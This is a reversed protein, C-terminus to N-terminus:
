HVTQRIITPDRRGVVGRAADEEEVCRMPQAKTTRGPWSRRPRASVRVSNGLRLVLHEDFGDAKEYGEGQGPKTITDSGVDQARRWRRTGGTGDKAGAHAVDEAADGPSSEAAPDVVSGAEYRAAATRLEEGPCEAHQDAQYHSDGKRYWQHEEEWRRQGPRQRTQYNQDGRNKRSADERRPGAVEQRESPKMM